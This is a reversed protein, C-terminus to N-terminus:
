TREVTPPGTYTVRPSTTYSRGGSLFGLANWERRSRLFPDRIRVLTHYEEAVVIPSHLGVLLWVFGM